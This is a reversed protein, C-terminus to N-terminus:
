MFMCGGLSWVMCFSLVFVVCVVGWFFFGFIVDNFCFVLFCCLFKLFEFMRLLYILGLFDGDGLCRRVFLFVKGFLSLM